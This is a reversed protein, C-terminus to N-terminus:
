KIGKITIYYVNRVRGDDVGFSKYQRLQGTLTWGKVIYGQRTLARAWMNRRILAQKAAQAAEYGNDQWDLPDFRIQEGIARDRCLDTIVGGVPGITTNM